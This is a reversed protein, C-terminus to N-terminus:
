LTLPEETAEDTTNEEPTEAPAEEALFVPAAEEKNANFEPIYYCNEEENFTVLSTPIYKTVKVPANDKDVKGTDEVVKTVLAESQYGGTLAVVGAEYGKIEEEIEKVELLIKKAQALMRNKKVVLPNVNQAIRKIAAFNRVTLKKM